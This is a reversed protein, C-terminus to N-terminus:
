HSDSESAPARTQLLQLLLVPLLRCRAAPTMQQKAAATTLPSSAAPLGYSIHENPLKM